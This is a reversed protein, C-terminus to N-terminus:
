TLFLNARTHQLKQQKAANPEETHARMGQWQMKKQRCSAVGEDEGQKEEADEWSLKEDQNSTNIKHPQCLLGKETGHHM